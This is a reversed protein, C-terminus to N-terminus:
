RLSPPNWTAALAVYAGFKNLVPWNAFKGKLFCVEDIHFGLHQLYLVMCPPMPFVLHDHAGAYSALMRQDTADKALLFRCFKEFSIPNPYTIILRGGNKLIRSFKHFALYPHPLHEFVEMFVVADFSDVYQPNDIDFVSIKRYTVLSSDQYMDVENGVDIATIHSGESIFELLSNHIIGQGKHGLFGVDMIKCPMSLKSIHALMFQTRTSYKAM